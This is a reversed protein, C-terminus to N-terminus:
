NNELHSTSASFALSQSGYEGELEGCHSPFPRKKQRKNNSNIWNMKLLHQIWSQLSGSMFSTLHYWPAATIPSKQLSFYKSLRQNMMLSKHIKAFFFFVFPYQVIESQNICNNFLNMLYKPGILWNEQVPQRSYATAPHPCSSETSYRSRSDAAVSPPRWGASFAFTSLECQCSAQGM